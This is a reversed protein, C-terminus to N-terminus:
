QRYFVEWDDPSFNRTGALITFPDKVGSPVTYTRHLGFGTHSRIDTQTRMMIFASTTDKVLYQGTLFQIIFM